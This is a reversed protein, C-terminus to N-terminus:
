EKEGVAKPLRPDLGTRGCLGTDKEGDEGEETSLRSSSSSACKNPSGERRKVSGPIGADVRKWSPIRNNEKTRTAEDVSNISTEV